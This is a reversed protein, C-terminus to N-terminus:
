KERLLKELEQLRTALETARNEAELRAQAENEARQAENEARQAENEARQAEQQIREEAELRDLLLKGTVSDILEIERRKEGVLGILIGTTQSLLQGKDNPKIPQYRGRVLRYGMLEFPRNKRKLNPNIIIYEEVGAQEYIPIKELDGKELGPSMVEIILCPHTGEKVCDVSTDIEEKNELNPIVAVDPYPEKLGPIGWIMKSDFTVLIDPRDKHFHSELKDHINIALKSHKISQSMHDGEMPNLYDELTLPIDQWITEGDPGTEIITRWGYITEEKKTKEYGNYSDM